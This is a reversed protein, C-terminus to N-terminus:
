QNNTTFPATNNESGIHITQTPDISNSNFYTPDPHSFDTKIPDVQEATLQKSGTKSFVFNSIFFSLVGSIAVIVILMAIDKQKM